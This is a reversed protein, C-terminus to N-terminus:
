EVKRGGSVAPPWDHLVGDGAIRDDLFAVVRQASLILEQARTQSSSLASMASALDTTASTLGPLARSTEKAAQSSITAIDVAGPLVGALSGLQETLEASRRQSNASLETLTGLMERIPALDEDWAGVVDSASGVSSTLSEVQDALQSTVEELRAVAASAAAAAALCERVNAPMSSLSGGVASLRDAAMTLASAAGDLPAGDDMLRATQASLVAAFRSLSVEAEDARGAEWDRHVRLGVVGLLMIAIVFSYVAPGLTQGSWWVFFSEGKASDQYWMEALGLVLWAAIIPLFFLLGQGQRHRVAALSLLTELDLLSRLRNPSEVADKKWMEIASLVAERDPIVWLPQIRIFEEIEGLTSLVANTRSSVDAMIM